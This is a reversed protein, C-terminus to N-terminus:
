CRLRQNTVQSSTAPAIPGPTCPNAPRTLLSFNPNAREWEQESFGAVLVFATEQRNVPLGSIFFSLQHLTVQLGSGSPLAHM